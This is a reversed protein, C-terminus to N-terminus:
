LGVEKSMNKEVKVNKRVSTRGYRQEVTKPEGRSRVVQVVPSSGVRTQDNSDSIKGHPEAREWPEDLPSSERQLRRTTEGGNQTNTVRSGPQACADCSTYMAQIIWFILRVCLIM